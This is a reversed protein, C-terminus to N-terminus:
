TVANEESPASGKAKVAAKAEYMAKDAQGILEEISNGSGPYAAIGISATIRVRMGLDYPASLAATVKAAVEGAFAEDSHPLLVAFEDGGLRAPLDAARVANKLRLAVARLLMDGAAHGYRDNVPKFGDLDIYLVALTCGYRKCGEIELAAMELFLARNPLGTLPDHEARHEASLILESARTIALGVEDAERLGLPPVVVRQRRGIRAAPEALGYISAAIGGGLRWAVILGVALIALVGLTATLTRRWLDEVLGQRPIGIAVTWGSAQSRSFSSIVPIGELTITELTGEPERAVRDVLATAAKRGVFREHSHTRAVVTGSTDLVVGVWGPPLKQTSLIAEFRSPVNGLSLVYVIAGDRLVPVDVSMVPRGLVAGTYLDSIVPQGTELVRRLQAPNGHMPLAEGPKRLTNILQRGNTDSVVVIDGIGLSVVEQAQDLFAALDGRQLRQSTAAVQAAARISVLERDIAQVMARAVAVSDGELRERESLQEHRVLAAALLIAPAVVALVLLALRARIGSPLRFLLRNM